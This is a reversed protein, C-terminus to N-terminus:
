KTQFFLEENRVDVTITHGEKVEGSLIHVSIPDLLLSQLTRKLPRAGFEEDYGERALLNKAAETLELRIKKAALRERIRRLQIEIIDRMHESSLKHFTIIEDIRNLFEPRFYEKLLTRMREDLEEKEKPSTFGQISPSLNSGINSTMIIVTNTFNVTRGQGDTLRGDDMIQLLINFVDPHAKEIEDFLIVAYPRRRIVETLQGGEEYGVYGPPAGILRQVSFKEMYESMDIRVLARETDFLFEALAKSLETKGVGTPGLFLFSGIPRNEEQIGARSRRIANAVAKIAHDQGVVRAKLADELHLLRQKESELMRSVPVGTWESVVRAIDEETIEERLLRQENEMAHLKQQLSALLKQKEPIRGYRIEAVKDLQGSRQYREEEIKLTDIEQNIEKIQRIIEREQAWKSKLTTAEEQLEALEKEVKHLQEQSDPGKEKKLAEKEISLRLIKRELDDIVQPQSEIELRIKSAAEDVLDIAKDPLHRETIYRVSLQAAAVLASDAIRIGHHLEYKEKLGRLISITDEVSPEAVYVAQFRRELAKDKEIYKRYEDLTTAGIVKIEGRALAPKIMNGADIAGEASGAGVLTHIEDIFLIIEGESDVVEKLLAKFREEFDGRFKTGAILLGLDLSLIRKNKLSEPVDGSVIRRAIGEVIATKGVGAEGILVPNNKTRRTLVQMARRIEADRGIVPDLKGQRALETLDRTYKELAQYKGEPTEDTVRHSGRLNKIALLIREYHLNVSEFLQKLGEDKTNVIGLLLHETSVYEDHMKGMEQFARDMAETLEKGFYNQWAGEVRPKTTLRKELLSSLKAPPVELQTLIPRVLGDEQEMLALLLHESEVAQHGYRSAKEVAAELAERAKVTLKSMNMM